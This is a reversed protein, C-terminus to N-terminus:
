TKADMRDIAALADEFPDGEYIGSALGEDLAARLAALKAEDKEQKPSM